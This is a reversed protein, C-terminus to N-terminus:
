HGLSDGRSYLPVHSDIAFYGLLLGLALIAARRARWDVQESQWTEESQQRQRQDAQGQPATMERWPMAVAVVYCAAALLPAIDYLPRRTVVVAATLVTSTAIALVAYARRTLRELREREAELQVLTADL